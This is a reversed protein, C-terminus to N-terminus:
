KKLLEFRSSLDVKMERTMRQLEAMTDTSEYENQPVSSKGAPTARVEIHLINLNERCRPGSESSLGCVETVSM